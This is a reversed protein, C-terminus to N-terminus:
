RCFKFGRRINMRERGMKSWKKHEEECGGEKCEGKVEKVWEREEEV